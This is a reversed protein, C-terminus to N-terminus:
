FARKSAQFPIRFVAELAVANGNKTAPRFRCRALANRAFADLREDIGRLVRVDSIKGDSHIVAYLTVTGEVHTRMLEAPYAPDVKETAIPAILEGQRDEKLEAFRIIWSGGASNLNPMNLTMSYFRKPGFIATEVDPADNVHEPPRRSPLNHIGPMMAAAILGRSALTTPGSAVAAEMSISGPGPSIRIGQPATPDGEKGAGASKGGGVLEPTGSAEPRGNPGASFTGRRNGNPMEIASGPVSPDLGLAIMQGASTSSKLGGVDPSSQAAQRTQGAQLEETPPPQSAAADSSKVQTEPVSLKPAAITPEFNLPFNIGDLKRTIPPPPPKIAAEFTQQFHPSPILAAAPSPAVIDPRAIMPRSAPASRQVEPVLAIAASVLADKLIPSKLRRMSAPLPVTSPVPTWAVLNPLDIQARLKVDPPTIITQSRNDSEPPVSLVEQRAQRLDGKQRIRSRRSQGQIQPLYESVHYFVVHSHDSFSRRLRPQQWPVQSLWGIAAIVIGHYVLSHLLSRWAMGTPVFVDPWFEGSPIELHLNAERPRAFGVVEAFNGFFSRFRAQSTILFTLTDPSNHRSSSTRRGWPFSM